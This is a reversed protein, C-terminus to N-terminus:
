FRYRLGLGLHNSGTKSPSILGYIGSRHHLRFVLSVNDQVVPTIESEFAMFYQLNYTDVGRIGDTGREFAIDGLAYSLGNTWSINTKFVDGILYDRSRVVAGGSVEWHDQLGKHKSVGAEVGLRLTQRFLSIDRLEKTLFISGIYSKEWEVDGTAFNYPMYPLRSNIWQGEFVTVSWNDAAPNEISNTEAYAQDSISFCFMWIVILFIHKM